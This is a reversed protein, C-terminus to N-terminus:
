SRSEPEADRAAQFADLDVHGRINAARMFAHARFLEGSYVIRDAAYHGPRDQDYVYCLDFVSPDGGFTASQARDVNTLTLRM